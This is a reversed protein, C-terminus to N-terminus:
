ERRKFKYGIKQNGILTSNNPVFIQQLAAKLMAKPVVSTGTYLIKTCLVTSFHPLNM